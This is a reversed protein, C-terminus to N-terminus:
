GEGSPSKCFALKQLMRLRQYENRKSILNKACMAPNSGM